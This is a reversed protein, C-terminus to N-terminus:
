PNNFPDDADPNVQSNPAVKEKNSCFKDALNDHQNLTNGTLAEGDRIGSSQSITDKDNDVEASAGVLNSDAPQAEDQTILSLADSPPQPFSQPAIPAHGHQQMVDTMTRSLM